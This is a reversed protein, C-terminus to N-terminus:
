RSNVMLYFFGLTLIAVYFGLAILNSQKKLELMRKLNKNMKKLEAKLEADGVMPTVSDHPFNDLASASLERTADGKWDLLGIGQLRQIYEDM